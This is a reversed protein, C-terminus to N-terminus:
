MGMMMMPLMSTAIGAGQGLGTMLPNTNQGYLPAQQVGAALSGISLPYQYQSQYFENLLANDTNQGLEQPLAGLTQSATAQQLPFNQQTQALQQAQPLTNIQNQTNQLQLSGLTSNLNNNAQTEANQDQKLRAGTWYAGGGAADSNIQNLQNNLNYDSTSKIAKYYPSTSPDFNDTLMGNAFNDANNFTANSSLPTNQYQQLEQLSQQQPQSMPATIEGSYQPGPQGIQGQLWQNLQNRVGGYPDAEATVSPTTEGTLWNTNGM